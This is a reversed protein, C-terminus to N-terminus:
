SVRRGLSWVGRVIPHHPSHYVHVLDARKGCALEGRDDLGISEAPTKSIMNIAQPLNITEIDDFLLMAGHLLSQPIYDSSLTDLYGKQALEHASINGSHSGGRVVNPAGMLVNLGLDHSAKAAEITTPFEAVTMGDKVAEAVHNETADDHSALAIKLDRAIEVVIRRHADGYMEQDRRRERIFIELEADSLGYKGKFYTYYAELSTFQRQGPTHDMVSMMRLLSNNINQRLAAPLGPYSVECRLHILHDARLLNERVAHSIGEVMKGCKAIRESSQNIDGLSLADLVTTIGAGAIQTDHAIVAATSPWDTKPRPSMHKELNDTHLEVFGPMLYDGQLDYAGPLASPTDQIDQILDDRVVLSGDLVTNALVIKANTFVHELM